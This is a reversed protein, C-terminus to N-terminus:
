IMDHEYAFATAAARTPVNLKGLINSVHRDVTRESIFLKTAIEKNTKGTALITLIERERPTLGHSQESTPQKISKIRAHDPGAGLETFTKTAADFEMKAT